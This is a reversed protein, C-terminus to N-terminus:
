FEVGAAQNKNVAVAFALSSFGGTTVTVARLYRRITATNATALRQASRGATLQTFTLGTVDAFSSNDASDQIKVTVDTGTFAFAQLYAQAGFLASAATDISAGNTAATDTRVGATLLDPWELGFANAQSQVSFTFAGDNGRSGDYNIQKAVLVAAANGLTTGRTYMVHVDTTPLLKLRPHQQNAAPNFFTTMDIAGDLGGYIREYASKNIGTVDLLARPSSINNVQQVDGSLDYGHIYLNDGLGSTKTM